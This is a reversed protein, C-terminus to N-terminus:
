EEETEDYPKFSDDLLSGFNNALECIANDLDKEEVIIGHGEGGIDYDTFLSISSLVEDIDLRYLKSM